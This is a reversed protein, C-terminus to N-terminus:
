DGPTLVLKGPLEGAEQFQHARATQSLPMVQEIAATLTGAALWRNIREAHWAYDATTSGTITFGHLTVNRTYFAGLPLDCHRDLGAMVVIRGRPALVALAQSMEFSRTADWYIKVGDPAFARLAEVIDDTHYNMVRDAGAEVCRAAKEASGATVAVRSGAAKAIQLVAMGVSGSGGNVFITEGAALGARDFLGLSATLASHLVAVAQIPEAQEPLLYLRDHPVALREAFSGQLGDIGLCNSWVRDGAAFQTVGHGVAEVVGVMDRGVIFPRPLNLAYAGSRIYTDIHNVAVASVRVLVEGAGIIPEPLQGYTISSAPGPANIYAAQM